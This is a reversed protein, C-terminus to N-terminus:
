VSRICSTDYIRTGSEWSDRWEIKRSVVKLVCYDKSEPGDPFHQSLDFTALGWVKRKVIPDSVVEAEGTIFVARDGHPHDVFALCIRPNSSIQRMKRSTCYTTIWISMNEEIIPSVPRVFPQYGDCTALYAHLCNEKMIAIIKEESPTV